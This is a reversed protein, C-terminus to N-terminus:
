AHEQVELFRRMFQSQLRVLAARAKKQEDDLQRFREEVTRQLDALDTGRVANRTAVRVREGQKVLTGEDVAVLEEQGDEHELSLIGPVLAAVFDLHRPLIGFAGDEAEAVVKRVPEDLLVHTPLMIRLQM